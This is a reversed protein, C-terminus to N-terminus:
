QTPETIRPYLLRSIGSPHVTIQDSPKGTDFCSAELLDEYTDLLHGGVM